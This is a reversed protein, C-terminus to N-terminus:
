KCAAVFPVAYEALAMVTLQPNVGLSTPFVSADCVFLNDYGYAKFQPDVVGLDPNGSLINGGQPHGTGITIDSSDKVLDYLRQLESVNKFEHYDFTNPICCTAGDAFFAQGSLVLGDLVKKLDGPTPVYDIERGLLGARRVEGNSETGVLVGTCTIRNYRLMNNFHDEFWGPMTLAQSVPPNFWTEIVYGRSPTPKLYHSIQLGRYANIEKDFVATMPSGMNFSLHKGTRSGGMGSRLLVISSSVAGASLVFTNARVEIRRGDKLRCIVATLKGGKAKFKQAECGALIRLANKGVEKQTRPLVTDLMSLKKGFKCGINCYGCGLCDHINADVVSHINPPDHLGLAVVGRNFYDAGENLNKNQPEVGILRSVEDFSRWVQTEDLRANIGSPDNWRSLVEEPMRFCVANNIVTSGGVCSGQLVQFRFDRSLQLAGDGYLRTLMEAEDETFTRPDEHDGRELM